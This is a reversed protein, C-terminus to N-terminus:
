QFVSFLSKGITTPTNNYSIRSELFSHTNWRFILSFDIIHNWSCLIIGFLNFGFISYFLTSSFNQSKVWILNEEGWKWRWMDELDLFRKHFLQNMRHERWYQYFSKYNFQAWFLPSIATLIDNLENQYLCDEPHIYRYIIQAKSSLFTPHFM